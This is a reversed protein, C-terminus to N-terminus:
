AQENLSPCNRADAVTQWQTDRGKAKKQEKLTSLFEFIFELNQHFKTKSKCKSQLYAGRQLNDNVSPHPFHAGSPSCPGIGLENPRM